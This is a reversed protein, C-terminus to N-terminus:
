GATGAGPPARLRHYRLTGMFGRAYLVALPFAPLDATHLAGLALKILAPTLAAALLLFAAVRSRRRVGMGLLLVAGASAVPYHAALVINIDTALLIVTSGIAHVVATIWADRVWRGATRLAAAGGGRDM